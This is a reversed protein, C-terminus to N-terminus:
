LDLRYWVAMDMLAMIVLDDDQLGQADAQVLSPVVVLFCRGLIQIFAAAQFTGPLVQRFYHKYRTM